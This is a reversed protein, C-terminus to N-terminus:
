KLVQYILKKIADDDLQKGDLLKFLFTARNTNGYAGFVKAAMQGRAKKDKPDGLKLVEVIFGNFGKVIENVEKYADCIRSMDGQIQNALEHDFQTSVKEYFETYGPKGFNTWVDIVKDFSSLESKMHHLALYWASKVKHISQGNNHYICVGEKGVWQDVNALLEDFTPFKYTVPRKLGLQQALKDLFGQGELSYDNHDVIGVLSWEPTDGYNLVIKQLPSTWEFLYSHRWTDHEPVDQYLGKLKPLITEEFIALEHGNDLGHADITGRTRLIYHGKWKSVVLLSGDLKEVITTGDLSTPLPFVEPNEGWNTFKPLGASILEGNSDWVSSRQVKNTRTWKAGIQQPIVLYVLEGNLVHENVYFQDRDVAQLDIKM